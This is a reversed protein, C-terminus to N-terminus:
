KVNAAFVDSNVPTGNRYFQGHLSSIGTPMSWFRGQFSIGNDSTKWNPNNFWVVLGTNNDYVYGSLNFTNGNRNKGTGTFTGVIGGSSAPVRGNLYGLSEDFTVSLTIVTDAVTVGKVITSNSLVITEDADLVHSTKVISQTATPTATPTPSMPNSNESCGILFFMSLIFLISLFRKM